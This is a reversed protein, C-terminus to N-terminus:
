AKRLIDTFNAVMGRTDAAIGSLHGIQYSPIPLVHLKVISYNTYGSIIIKM